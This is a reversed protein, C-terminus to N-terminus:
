FARYERRKSRIWRVEGDIPLVMQHVLDHHFSCLTTLNDPHNSGGQAVSVIHHYHIWHDDACREGNQGIHTCRRQDRLDVAHKEAATLPIRKGPKEAQAYIKRTKRTQAREAKLVPDQRKVYDEFVLTITEPLGQHRSTKQALLAQAREINQTTTHPIPVQLIDTDATLPKIKARVVAKPNRRRVERDIEKATHSKAFEVLEKANENTIAALIRNAKSVSLSRDQVAQQLCPHLMAMKGVAIFSYAAGEPLGCLKVAYTFLNKMGLKKYVKTEGVLQLQAVIPAEMRIYGQCLKLCTEHIELHKM